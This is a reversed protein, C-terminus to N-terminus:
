LLVKFDLTYLDGDIILGSDKSLLNDIEASSVIDKYGKRIIIYGPLLQYMSQPKISNLWDAKLQYDISKLDRGYEIRKEPTIWHSEKICQIYSKIKSFMEKKAMWQQYQIKSM